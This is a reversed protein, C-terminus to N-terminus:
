PAVEPNVWLRSVWLVIVLDRGHQTDKKVHLYDVAILDPSRALDRLLHTLNSYGGSMHLEAQIRIRDPSEQHVGPTISELRLKARSARQSMSELFETSASAEGAEAPLRNAKLVEELKEPVSLIQGSGASVEGRGALLGQYRRADPQAIKTHVLALAAILVALLLVTLLPRTHAGGPRAPDAPSLESSWAGNPAM